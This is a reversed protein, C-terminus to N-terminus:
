HRRINSDSKFILLGVTNWTQTDVANGAAHVRILASFFLPSDPIDPTEGKM